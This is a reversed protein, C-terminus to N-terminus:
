KKKGVVVKIYSVKGTEKNVMAVTYVGPKNVKFVPLALQGDAGSTVAGLSVYKGNVKIMVNFDSDAAQKPVILSVTSGAVTKVTPATGIMPAAPNKMFRDKAKEAEEMSVVLVTAAPRFAEEPNRTPQEPVVEVPPLPDAVPTTVTPTTPAPTTEGGGTGGGGGGTGGGGGGNDAAAAKWTFTPASFSFTPLYATISGDTDDIFYNVDANIDTDADRTMNYLAASATPDAIGFVEQLALRPLKVAFSASNLTTGDAKFHSGVANFSFGDNINNVELAQANSSLWGGDFQSPLLVDDTPILVTMMQLKDTVNIPNVCDNQFDCDGAFTTDMPSGEWAVYRYAGVVQNQLSGPGGTTYAFWGKPALVPAGAAGAKAENILLNDQGVNVVVKLSETSTMAGEPGNFFSTPNNTGVFITIAGTNLDLLGRVAIDRTSMDIPAGNEDKLEVSEICPTFFMTQCDEMLDPWTQRFFVISYETPVLAEDLTTIVVSTPAGQYSLPIDMSAIGSELLVEPGGNVSYSMTNTAPNTLVATITTSPTDHTVADKVNVTYSSTANDFAPSLDGASVSLSALGGAPPIANASTAGALTGAIIALTAMAGAFIRHTKIM